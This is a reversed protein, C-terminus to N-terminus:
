YRANIPATALACPGATSSEIRRRLMATQVAELRGQWFAPHRRAYLDIIEAAILPHRDLGKALSPVGMGYNIGLQIPKMRDRQTRNNTKWRIPDPDDTLGCMRALAHYVDGSEYEMRLVPDNFRAAAVAVEQSRWDLYFGIVDRDFKM